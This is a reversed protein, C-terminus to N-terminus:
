DQREDQGTLLKWVEPDFQVDKLTITTRKNLFYNSVQQDLFKSGDPEPEIVYFKETKFYQTSGDVPNGEADLRVLRM